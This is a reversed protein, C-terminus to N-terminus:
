IAAGAARLTTVAHQVLVEVERAKIIYGLNMM